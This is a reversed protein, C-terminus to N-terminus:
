DLALFRVGDAAALVLRNDWVAMDLIQQQLDITKVYAGDKKNVVTITDAWTKKDIERKSALYLKDGAVVMMQGGWYRYAFATKNMSFAGHSLVRVGRMSSHDLAGDKSEEDWITKGKGDLAALTHNSSAYITDGDVVLDGTATHDDAVDERWVKEFEGTPKSLSVLSKNISGDINNTYSGFLLNGHYLTPGAVIDVKGSHEKALAEGRPSVRYLNWYYGGVFAGDLFLPRPRFLRGAFENPLMAPELDINAKTVKGDARNYINFDQGTLVAVQDPTMCPASVRSSVGGAQWVKTGDSSLYGVVSPAFTMQKLDGMFAWFTGKAGTAEYGSFAIGNDDVDIERVGTQELPTSWLVKGDSSLAAIGERGAVYLTGNHLFLRTPVGIAQLDPSPQALKPPVVNKHELKAAFSPAAVLAFAQFLLCVVVRARM